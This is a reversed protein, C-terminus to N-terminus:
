GNGFVREPTILVAARRDAAMVRDFEDFDDHTGGAATFIERLLLRLREPGIGAMPDDPGAIDVPGDVAAWQWGARLVAAARPRARLHALKRAQGHIVSGVVREGTIPHDLVGVNVVSPRMHGDPGTVTLAALGHDMPVLAEFEMLDAMPEKGTCM